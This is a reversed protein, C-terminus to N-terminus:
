RRSVELISSETDHHMRAQRSQPPGIGSITRSETQTVGGGARRELEAIRRKAADLEARM